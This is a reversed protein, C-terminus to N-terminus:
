DSDRDEIMRKMLGLLPNNMKDVQSQLTIACFFLENAHKCKKTIMEMAETTRETSHLAKVVEKHLYECRDEPIGLAEHTYESDNVHVVEHGKMHELKDVPLEYTVHFYNPFWKM